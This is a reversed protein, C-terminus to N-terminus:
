GDIGVTFWIHKSAPKHFYDIIIEELMDRPFRESTDLVLRFRGFRRKCCKSDAYVLFSGIPVHGAPLVHLSRFKSIGVYTM